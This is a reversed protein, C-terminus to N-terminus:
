LCDGKPMASGSLDCYYDQTAGSGPPQDGRWNLTPHWCSPFLAM